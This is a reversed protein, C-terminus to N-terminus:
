KGKQFEDAIKDKELSIKRQFEEIESPSYWKCKAAIAGGAYEVIFWRGRKVYYTIISLSGFVILGFGMLAAGPADDDSAAVLVLLVGLGILICGTILAWGINIKKFSTGTIDKVSVAKKGKTSVLKANSLEFIKGAAYLRKDTLVMLSKTVKNESFVITVYQRGLVGRLLESPDNYFTTPIEAM